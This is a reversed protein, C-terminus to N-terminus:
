EAAADTVIRTEARKAKRAERLLAVDEKVRAAMEPAAEVASRVLAVVMHPSQKAAESSRRVM